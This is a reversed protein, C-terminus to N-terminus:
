HLRNVNLDENADNLVEIKNLAMFLAVKGQYSYGNWSFSADTSYLTVDDKETM